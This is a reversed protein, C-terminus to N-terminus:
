PEAAVARVHIVSGDNSAVVEVEAIRELVM